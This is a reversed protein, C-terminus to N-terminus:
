YNDNGTFCHRGGRHSRAEETGTTGERDWTRNLGLWARGPCIGWFCRPQGSHSSVLKRELVESYKWHRHWESRGCTKYALDWGPETIASSSDRGRKGRLSFSGNPDECMRFFTLAQALSRHLTAWGHSMLFPDEELLSWNCITGIGEEKSPLAKPMSFWFPHKLSIRFGVWHWVELIQAILKNMQIKIKLKKRIVFYDYFIGFPLCTYTIYTHLM